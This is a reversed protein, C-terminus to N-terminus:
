YPPLDNLTGLTYGVYKQMDDPLHSLIPTKKGRWPRFFEATWPMVVMHKGSNIVFRTTHKLGLQDLLSLNGVVIDNDHAKEIQQTTGYAVRCVNIGLVDSYARGCVLLPRPDTAWTGKPTTEPFFGTVIDYLRPPEREWDPV